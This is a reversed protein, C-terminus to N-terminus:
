ATNFRYGYLAPCRNIQVVCSLSVCNESMHAFIYVENGPTQVRVSIGYDRGTPDDIDSIVKGEVPSHIGFSFATPVLDIGDHGELKFRAYNQKNVGFAQTIRYGCLFIKDILM